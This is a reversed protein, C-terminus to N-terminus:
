GKQGEPMEGQCPSDAGALPPALNREGYFGGLVCFLPVARVTGRYYGRLTRTWLRSYIKITKQRSLRTAFFEERCAFTRGFPTRQLPGCSM